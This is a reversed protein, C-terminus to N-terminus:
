MKGELESDSSKTLGYHLHIEQFHKFSVTTLVNECDDGLRRRKESKETKIPRECKSREVIILQREQFDTLLLERFPALKVGM